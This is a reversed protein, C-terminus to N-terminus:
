MKKQFLKLFKEEPLFIGILALIFVIFSTIVVARFEIYTYYYGMFGNYTKGTNGNFYLIPELLSIALLTIFTVGALALFVTCTIKFQSLRKYEKEEVTYYNFESDSKKNKLLFDIPVDFLKSLKMVNELDPMSVGSEWKSVSQRSVDLQYAIDEQSMNKNKRLERLTENFM